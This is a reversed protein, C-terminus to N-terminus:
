AASTARLRAAFPVPACFTEAVALVLWCDFWAMYNDHMASGGAILLMNVLAFACCLRAERGTAIRWSLWALPLCLLARATLVLAHPAYYVWSNWVPAMLGGWLVVNSVFGRADLALWPLVLVALTAACSVAARWSRVAPLLLLFVAGPAIKSAVALGVAVGLAARHGRLGLLLGAFGFLLPWIDTATWYIFFRYFLPDLLLAAVALGALALGARAELVLAGIIGILALGAVGNTLPVVGPGALPALAAAVLLPVPGYKYGLLAAERRALPTADPALPPVLADRLAPDYTAFYREIAGPIDGEPFSPALGAARRLDLRHVFATDDM